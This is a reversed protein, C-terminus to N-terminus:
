RLTAQCQNSINPQAAEIIKRRDEEGWPNLAKKWIAARPHDKWPTSDLFAWREESYRGGALIVGKDILKSIRPANSWSPIKQVILGFFEFINNITIQAEFKTPRQIEELSEIVWSQIKPSEYYSETESIFYLLTSVGLPYNAFRAKLYNLPIPSKEPDLQSLGIRTLDDFAPPLSRSIDQLFSPLKILDEFWLGKQNEIKSKIILPSLFHEESFNTNALLNRQEISGTRIASRYLTDLVPLLEAKGMQLILSENNMLGIWNHFLGPLQDLYKILIRMQVPTITEANKNLWKQLHSVQDPSTKLRIAADGIASEFENAHKLRAEAKPGLAPHLKLAFYGGSNTLVDDILKENKPNKLFIPFSSSDFFAVLMKESVEKNYAVEVRVMTSLGLLLQRFVDNELLGLEQQWRLSFFEQILERNNIQGHLDLLGIFSKTLKTIQEENLSTPMETSGVMFALWLIHSIHSGPRAPGEWLNPDRVMPNQSLLKIMWWLHPIEVKKSKSQYRTSLISHILSLLKHSDQQTKFNQLLPSEGIQSMLLTLERSTVSSLRLSEYIHRLGDVSNLQEINEALVNLPVVSRYVGKPSGLIAANKVVFAQVEYPYLLADIAFHDAFQDEFTSFRSRDLNPARQKYEAFLEFGKGKTIDILRAKNSIEFSMLRSADKGWDEAFEKNIVAVGYLGQGASGNTSPLVGQLSINRFAEETKVGHYYHGDPFFHSINELVDTESLGYAELAKQTKGPPHYVRFLYQNLPEILHPYLAPLLDVKFHESLLKMATPNTYSRFGKQIAGNIWKKFQPKTLYPLLEKGDLCANIVAAVQRASEPDLDFLDAHKPYDSGYERFYSNAKLRLFRLALLVPHNLKDKAYHSQAFVDKATFHVTIKGNLIEALGNGFQPNTVIGNHTLRIKETPIYGQQLENLGEPTSPDFIEPGRRDISAVGYDDPNLNPKIKAIVDIDSEGFIFERADIFPLSRLSEPTQGERLKGKIWYLFDRSTGGYFEAQPDLEWVERFLTVKNALDSALRRFDEENLNISAAAWTLPLVSFQITLGITAFLV